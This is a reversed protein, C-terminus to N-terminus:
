LRRGDASLLARSHNIAASAETSSPSLPTRRWFPPKTALPFSKRVCGDIWSLDLANGDRRWGFALDGDLSVLTGSGLWGGGGAAVRRVSLGTINLRGPGAPDTSPSRCGSKVRSLGDSAEHFPILFRQRNAALDGRDILLHRAQRKM